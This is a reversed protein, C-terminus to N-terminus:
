LLGGSATQVWQAGDYEMDMWSSQALTGLSGIVLGFLGTAERKIRFKAGSYARTTSLTVPRNATLAGKLVQTPSNTLAQLTMAADANAIIRAALPRVPKWNVGDSLVYDPQGDHLDTVWLYQRPYLTPDPLSAVTFVGPIIILGAPIFLPM